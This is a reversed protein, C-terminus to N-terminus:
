KHAEKVEPITTFVKMGPTAALNCAIELKPRGDVKVMCFRCVGAISLGPHWCFHPIYVNNRAAAEMVTTGKAVTLEKDNLLFTVQDPAQKVPSAETM